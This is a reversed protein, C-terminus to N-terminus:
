RRTGPRSGPRHQRWVVLCSVNGLTDSPSRARGRPIHYVLYHTRHDLSRGACPSGRVSRLTQEPSRRKGAERASLAVARGGGRVVGPARRLGGRVPARSAPAAGPARAQRRKGPAHDQEVRAVASPPRAGQPSARRRTAERHRRRRCGWLREAPAEPVPPPAARLATRAGRTARSTPPWPSSCRGSTLVPIGPVRRGSAKAHAM